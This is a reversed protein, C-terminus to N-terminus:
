TSKFRVDPKNIAVRTIRLALLQCTQTVVAIPYIAMLLDGIM